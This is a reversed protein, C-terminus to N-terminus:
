IVINRITCFLQGQIQYYYPNKKLVYNNDIVELYPVTFNTIKSNRATYPCKVKIITEEGLLGDPTAGLFPHSDSIFLGCPQVALDNMVCYNEIAVPEQVQGHTTARSTFSKPNMIKESLHKRTDSKSHGM